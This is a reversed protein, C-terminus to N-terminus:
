RRITLQLQERATTANDDEDIVTLLITAPTEGLFSLTVEAQNMSGAVVRFEDGVIEWRYRLPREGAPDDIPDASARGDLTVPSQFGDNEPIAGPTFGIRAVPPYGTSSECGTLAGACTFALLAHRLIRMDTLSHM